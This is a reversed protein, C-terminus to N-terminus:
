RQCLVIGKVIQNNTTEYGISTYDHKGYYWDSHVNLTIDVPKDVTLLDNVGGEYGEVFVHTEPDLTQLHEILEKVIM